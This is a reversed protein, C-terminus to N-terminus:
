QQTSPLVTSVLQDAINYTYNTENGLADKVSIVNGRADYRFHTVHSLNDTVTLPQGLKTAQTYEGDQTYNYTTTQDGPNGPVVKTLINGLSDYTFTTTVTDNTGTTGPEPTTITYLLGSPEYYDFTTPSKTGDQVSALRGLPFGTPYDYTYTTTTQRPSTRTLINGYDDYTYSTQRGAKDTIKTPQGPNDEDEYEYRTIYGRADVTGTALNSREPDFSASWESQVVGAENKVQVKTTDSMDYLFWTENENADMLRDVQGDSNYHITQASPTTSRTPNPFSISTLHPHANPSGVATYDYTYRAPPTGGSEPGIQSVTLLCTEGASSGFSYVIKRDYADTVSSLRNTGSEYDLDLLVTAPSADDEVYDVRYDNQADREISVYHAVRNSIKTLRYTNTQAPTLTWSTGDYFTVKLSEWQGSTGAVGTVFRNTGKPGTFAGTPDENGDLEPKYTETAGNPYTLILDKWVDHGTTGPAITVDFNDVWGTSLGYSNYGDPQTKARRSIFNRQYVVAPGFPNYVTIDPNPLYMDEGTALDVPDGDGSGTGGNQPTFGPARPFYSRRYNDGPVPTVARDAVPLTWDTYWWAGSSGCSVQVRGSGSSTGTASAGIPFTARITGDPATYCRMEFTCTRSGGYGTSNATPMNYAGAVTAGAGSVSYSQTTTIHFIASAPPNPGDWHYTWKERGIVFATAGGCCETWDGYPTPAGGSNSYGLNDSWYDCTPIIGSCGIDGYNGFYLTSDYAWGGLAPGQITIAAVLLGLCVIVIRHKDM